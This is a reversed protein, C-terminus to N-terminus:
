GVIHDLHCIEEWSMGTKEMAWKGELSDKDFRCLHPLFKVGHGFAKTYIDNLDRWAEEEHEKWCSFRGGYKNEIEEGMEEPYVLAETTVAYCADLDDGFFNRHKKAWKEDKECSTPNQIWKCGKPFLKDCIDFLEKRGLRMTDSALDDGINYGWYMPGEDTHCTIGTVKLCKYGNITVWEMNNNKKM